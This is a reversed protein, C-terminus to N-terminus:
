KAQQEARYETRRKDREAEKLRPCTFCYYGGDVLYYLCCAAKMRVQKDPSAISETMRIKINFPNKSRGFVAGDIAKVIGYNRTAQEKVSESEDSEMLREYGYELSTPIQSWLMGVQLTGVKAISELVPRLTQSIFSSLKEEAWAAQEILDDPGSHLELSNLLLNTAYYERGNYSAKYLQVTLNNLSLDATKNWASLMYLLGLIPGRFWGTMYVEGVSPDLGKVLPTYLDLLQKMKIEDTLEAAPCSFVPSEQKKVTLDFNNELKELMSENLM